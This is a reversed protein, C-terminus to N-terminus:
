GGSHLLLDIRGVRRKVAPHAADGCVNLTVHRKGVAGGIASTRIERANRIGAPQCAIREVGQWLGFCLEDGAKTRL